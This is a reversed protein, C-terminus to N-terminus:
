LPPGHACEGVWGGTGVRFGVSEGADDDCEPCVEEAAEVLEDTVGELGLEVGPEFLLQVGCLLGLALQLQM